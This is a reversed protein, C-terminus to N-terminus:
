RGTFRPLRREAMAAVGERWDETQTLRDQEQRERDTAARIAAPLHGRM